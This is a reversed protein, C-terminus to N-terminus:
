GLTSAVCQAFVKSMMPIVNELMVISTDVVSKRWCCLMWANGHRVRLGSKFGM